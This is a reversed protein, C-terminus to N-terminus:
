PRFFGDGELVQRMEDAVATAEADIPSLIDWSLQMVESMMDWAKSFSSQVGIAIVDREALDAVLRAIALYQLGIVKDTLPQIALTCARQSRRVLKILRAPPIDAVPEKLAQGLLALVPDLIGGDDGLVRQIITVVATMMAPVLMREVLQRDTMYRM